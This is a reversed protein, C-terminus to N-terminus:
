VVEIKKNDFIGLVVNQIIRIVVIYKEESQRRGMNYLEILSSIM